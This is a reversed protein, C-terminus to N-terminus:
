KKNLCQELYDFANQKEMQNILRTMENKCFDETFYIEFPNNEPSYEQGCRTYLDDFGPGDPMQMVPLCTAVLYLVIPSMKLLDKKLDDLSIRETCKAAELNHNLAKVYTQIFENLKEERVYHKLSTWIFFTLDSAPSAYRLVQFDLLRIDVCNGESDHKFMMNTIWPDGQNITNFAGPKVSDKLFDWLVTSCSKIIDSIRKNGTTKLVKDAMCDLGYRLINKTSQAIKLDESFMKEFCLIKILEPNQKFVAVSGAHFAAAAEAYKLCSDLNLQETRDAMAFGAEKLDELVVVPISASSQYFKAAFSKNHAKPLYDRYFLPEVDLTDGIIDKIAGHTLPLKVILKKEYKSTKDTYKLNVRIVVSGYNNGPPVASESKFDTVVINKNKSENRLCDTLFDANFWDPIAIAM